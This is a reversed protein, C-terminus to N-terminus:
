WGNKKIKALFIVFTKGHLCLEYAYYMSLLEIGKGSLFIGIKKWTPYGSIVPISCKTSVAVV